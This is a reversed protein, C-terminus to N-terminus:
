LALRRCLIPASCHSFSLRLQDSDAAAECHPKLLFALSHLVFSPAQFLAEPFRLFELGAPGRWEPDSYGSRSSRGRLRIPPVPGAASVFLHSGASAQHPCNRLPCSPSLRTVHSFGSSWKSYRYCVKLRERRGTKASFNRIYYLSTLFSYRKRAM